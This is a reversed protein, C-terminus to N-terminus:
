LQQHMFATNWMAGTDPMGHVLLITEGNEGNKKCFDRVHYDAGNIRLSVEDIARKAM